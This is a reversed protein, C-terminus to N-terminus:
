FARSWNIFQFIARLRWYPLVQRIMTWFKHFPQDSLKEFGVKFIRKSFNVLDVYGKGEGPSLRNIESVTDEISGGYDLKSGDSFEFRYWPEVPLFEIYDERKKGL